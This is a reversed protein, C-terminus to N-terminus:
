SGPRGGPWWALGLTAEWNEEIPLDDIISAFPNNVLGIFNRNRRNSLSVSARLDLAELPSLARPLGVEDLALFTRLGGLLETDHGRFAAFTSLGEEFYADDDRRIRELFAGASGWDGFLDVALHQANSGPGVFTGLLQGRQTHGQSVRGHVFFTAPGRLDGSRGGGLSSEAFGVLDMRNNTLEAAFRVWTDGGTWVKQLGLTYAQAHDPEDLFDRVDASFDERAWEGYVEFGSEPLVWRFFVSGLANGENSAGGESSTPLTLFEFHEGFPLGGEPRTNQYLTQFGVFLGPAFDPSFTLTGSNVIREDNDPNADFHDSEDLLGWLAEFELTGIGVDLPDSSRLFLHPFGGATNSMVIPYRRAPGRWLNENSIGAALGVLDLRAHSQGARLTTYGDDGFRLPWDIGVQWPYRFESVGPRGRDVPELGTDPLRYPANEMANLEPAVAASFPGWRFAVGASAQTSFGRGAWLSGNNRDNPYASNYVTFSRVPLVELTAPGPLLDAQGRAGWTNGGPLACVTRRREDATRRQHGSRLPARGAVEAARLFARVPGSLEAIRLTTEGAPCRGDDELESALHPDADGSQAAAPAAALLLALALTTVTAAAHPGRM